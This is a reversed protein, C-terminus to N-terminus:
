GDLSVDVGWSASWTDGPEIVIVDHGSRFADPPCTQPEIAVARRQRDGHLTDSTFVVWWKFQEGAWVRLTRGGGAIRVSSTGDPDRDLDGFANDLVQGGIRRPATFDHDGGTVKAAGIPLLRADFLVRSRAPVTLALDDVTTGPLRFYPHAALGFPAAAAGINTAEHDVRLGDPGLTYRTRLRLQWPYGVQAPLELEILVSNGTQEVLRWRQWAVLGHIANHKAPETLPLQYTEGGFAYRGDRIRSPWPALVQGSSGPPLEDEAYGDLYDVGGARYARLGGGVEVVVAEQGDSAITWQTGSLPPATRNTM